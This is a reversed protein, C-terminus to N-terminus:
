NYYILTIIFYSKVNEITTKIEKMFDSCNLLVGYNKELEEM